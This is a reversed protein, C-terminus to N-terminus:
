AFGVGACHTERSDYGRCSVCPVIGHCICLKVLYLVSGSFMWCVWCM